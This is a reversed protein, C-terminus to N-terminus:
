HYLFRPEAPVAYDSNNTVHKNKLKAQEATYTRNLFLVQSLKKKILNTTRVSLTLFNQAIQKTIDENHFEQM